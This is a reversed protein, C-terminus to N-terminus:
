ATTSRRIASIASTPSVTGSAGKSRTTITSHTTSDSCATVKSIRSTTSPPLAISFRLSRTISTTDLRFVRGKQVLRAAQVVGEPTLFNLCGIEDDDGFVGWNSDPPAGKKIPLESFRPIKNFDVKAM